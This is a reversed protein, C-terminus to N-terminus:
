HRGVPLPRLDPAVWSARARDSALLEASYHRTLLTKDLLGANGSLFAEFASEEADAARHLAVLRVWSRTITDHYRDAAGHLRAVYRIADAMETEAEAVTHCELCAFALELHERHGFAGREKLIRHLEAHQEAM